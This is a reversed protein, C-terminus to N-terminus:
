SQKLEIEQEAASAIEVVEMERISLGCYGLIKAVLLAYMSSDLEFDQLDSAGANYVPNGGIEIYSWKPSKPTRIYLMELTFGATIKPYAKYAHAIKTYIPFTLTPPNIKSNIKNNLEYGKLFEEMDILKGQANKLSLGITRYLDTGTYKWLDTPVDYTFNAPTTYMSFVDIQEQINKPIDAFESNSFRKYKNNIWKNYRYFLNEFLDMQALYALSDFKMPDVYGKNNKELLFLVTNRVRNISIM